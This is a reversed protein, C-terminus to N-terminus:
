LTDILLINVCIVLVVDLSTSFSCKDVGWTSTQHSDTGSPLLQQRVLLIGLKALDLSQGFATGLWLSCGLDKSVKCGCEQLLKGQIGESWGDRRFPQMDGREM